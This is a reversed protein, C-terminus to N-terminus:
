LVGLGPTRTIPVPYRWDRNLWRYVRLSTLAIMDIWTHNCRTRLKVYKVLTDGCSKALPGGSYIITDLTKILDLAQPILVLQEIISPPIHLTRLQKQRM